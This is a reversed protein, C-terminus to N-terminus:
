MELQIEDQKQVSVFHICAHTLHLDIHSHYHQHHEDQTSTVYKSKSRVGCM